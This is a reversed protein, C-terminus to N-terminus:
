IPVASVGKMVEPKPITTDSPRSAAIPEPAPLKETNIPAAACCRVGSLRPLAAPMMLAPPDKPCNTNAGTDWASIWNRPQIPARHASATIVSPARGRTRTTLGELGLRVAVVAVVVVLDAGQCAM